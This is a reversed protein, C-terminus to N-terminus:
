GSSLREAFCQELGTQWAPLRLDFVRALKKTSLSSYAPRRAPTPYDLTTIPIVRVGDAKGASQMINKAFEYWTTSGQCAVHYLGCRDTVLQGHDFMQALMYATNEAVLKAYTPNGTQDHVVRLESREDALKLMTKFFNKGHNSYLWATRLILHHVGSAAIAQEGALKTKGYIGVPAPEAEEAYPVRAAGDFVYDTSYHVLLAGFERATEAMAAPAEANVRQAVVDDTEAQDVATYGSANVIIDPREQLIVRRVAGLDMLDCEQRDYATINGLTGLVPALYTGLQGRSGFLLIKM